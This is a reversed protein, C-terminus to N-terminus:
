NQPERDANILREATVEASIAPGTAALITSMFLATLYGPYRCM